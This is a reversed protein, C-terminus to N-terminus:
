RLVLRRRERMASAGAIALLAVLLGGAAGVAGSGWSFSFGDGTTAEAEAAVGPRIARSDPHAAAGGSGPETRLQPQYGDPASVGSDQLQPQFGDPAAAAVPVAVTLM